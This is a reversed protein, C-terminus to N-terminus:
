KGQKILLENAKKLTETISKFYAEQDDSEQAMTVRTNIFLQATKLFEAKAQNHATSEGNRFHLKIASLETGSDNLKSGLVIKYKVANSELTRFAKSIATQKLDTLEQIDGRTFWASGDSASGTKILQLITEITPSTRNRRITNM